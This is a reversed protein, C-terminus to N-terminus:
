AVASVGWFTMLTRIKREATGEEMALIRWMHCSEFEVWSCPSLIEQRNELLQKTYSLIMDSTFLLLKVDEELAAPPLVLESPRWKVTGSIWKGSFIKFLHFGPVPYLYSCMLSTSSECHSFRCINYSIWLPDLSFYSIISHHDQWYSSPFSMLISPIAYVFCGHCLSVVLESALVIWIRRPLGPYKQCSFM